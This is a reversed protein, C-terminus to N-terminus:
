SSASARLLAVLAGAVKSGCLQCALLRHNTPGFPCAPMSVRQLVSLLKQRMRWARRSKSCKEFTASDNERRQMQALPYLFLDGSHAFGRVHTCRWRLQVLRAGPSVAGSIQFATCVTAQCAKRVRRTNPRHAKERPRFVNFPNTDTVAPPPQLRRLIPKGFKERQLKWCALVCLFLSRLSVATNVGPM